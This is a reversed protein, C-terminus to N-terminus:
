TAGKKSDLVNFVGAKTVRQTAPGLVQQVANVVMKGINGWKERSSVLIAIQARTGFKKANM